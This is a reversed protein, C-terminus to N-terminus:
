YYAKLISRFFQVSRFYRGNIFMYQEANKQKAASPRGVYGRVKVISTEVSVELLNTKIHRGVVDIIRELLTGAPLTIIPMDNSM